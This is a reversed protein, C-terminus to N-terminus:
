LMKTTLKSKRITQMNRTIQKFTSSHKYFEVCSEVENPAIKYKSESLSFM